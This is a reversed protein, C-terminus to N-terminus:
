KQDAPRSTALVKSRTLRWALYGAAVGDYSLCFAPWWGPVGPNSIFAGHAFDFIGHLFLAAVVLWLSGKFGAVSLGLFVAMVASELLLSHISGGVVAFLAYYSAIVVMVTPYFARDKDFGVLTAFLGVVLAIVAGVAYEM